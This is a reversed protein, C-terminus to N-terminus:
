GNNFGQCDPSNCVGGNKSGPGFAAMLSISLRIDNVTVTNFPYQTDMYVLDGTDYIAWGGNNINGNANYFGLMGPLTITLKDSDPDADRVRTGAGMDFGQIPELYGTIRIDGATVKGPDLDLYVPDNLSYAKDGDMDFYRLEAAPYRYTGFRILAKDHDPEAARVQSGAPFYSPDEFFTVRVDNESVMCDAPNMNIYVPDTPEFLGNNNLDIFAFEPGSFFPSLARSEDEDGAMVKSGYDQAIAPYSLMLFITALLIVGFNSIARMAKGGYDLRIQKFNNLSEM